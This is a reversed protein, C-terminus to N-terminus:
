RQNVRALHARWTGETHRLDRGGFAESLAGSADGDSAERVLRVAADVGEERALLDVVTGGLLVADRAAPPFRPPPGERLRRAIAPRAYRTRGSFFEAAGVGLWQRRLGKLGRLGPNADGVVLRAYLAAPTLRLMDRSGEVTTARARLVKPALVHITDRGAARGAVYRRGAPATARVVLALLPQAAHLQAPTGHLVVAIEHEPLARFSEGLRARTDELLELVERAGDADAGDHRAVFHESATEEWSM